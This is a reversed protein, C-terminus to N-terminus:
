RGRFRPARKEAFAREAEKHDETFWLRAFSARANRRAAKGAQASEAERLATKIARLSLPAAEAFTAALELARELSKGDPAVEDVLGLERAEAAGVRKGSYLLLAASARGVTKLLRPLGDWAPMLGLRSQPFGIQAADEAIRLDCALALESGGGLAFGNIAAIAPCPLAEIADCVDRMLNFVQELEDVSALRAYAKVDGGTCFYRTGSGTLILARLAPDAACARVQDALALAVERSIANGAGPRNLRLVLATGHREALVLKGSPTAM